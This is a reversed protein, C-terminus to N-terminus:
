IEQKGFESQQGRSEWVFGLSSRQAAGKWCVYCSCTTWWLTRRLSGICIVSFLKKRVQQKRTNASRVAASQSCIKWITDNDTAVQQCTFSCSSGHSSTLLYPIWKISSYIVVSSWRTMVHHPLVATLEQDWGSTCITNVKRLKKSAQRWFHLLLLNSCNKFTCRSVTESLIFRKRWRKRGM